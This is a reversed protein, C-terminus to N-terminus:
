EYTFDVFTNLTENSGFEIRKLQLGEYKFVVFSNTFGTIRALMGNENWSFAEYLPWTKSDHIM